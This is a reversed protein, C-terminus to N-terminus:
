SHTRFIVKNEMQRDYVYFVPLLLSFYQFQDKAIWRRAV